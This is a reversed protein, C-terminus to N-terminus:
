LPFAATQTPASKGREGQAKGPEIYHKDLYRICREPNLPHLAERVRHRATKNWFFASCFNAFFKGLAIAFGNM